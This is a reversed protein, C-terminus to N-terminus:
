QHLGDVAAGRQCNPCHRNRCSHPIFHERGCDACAYLHGGLAATRCRLLANLTKWHPAPLAPRSRDLAAALIEAVTLRPRPDAADHEAPVAKAREPCLSSM